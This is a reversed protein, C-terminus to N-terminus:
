SMAGETQVEFLVHWHFSGPSGHEADFASILEFGTHLRAIDRFGCYLHEYIKDDDAGPQVFTNPSVETGRGYEVNRKSLMTAQYWGGPRVIRRVEALTRALTAEDGHYVVNYALVYDFECDSYPLETVDGERLDIDLGEETARSRAVALAQPSRDLGFAKAGTQAFALAHRGAGCGLDLMTATTAANRERAADATRLVWQDPNVWEDDGGTTGWVDDWYLYAGM